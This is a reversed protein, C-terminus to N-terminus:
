VQYSSKECYILLRGSEYLSYLNSANFRGLLDLEIRAHEKEFEVDFKLGRINASLHSGRLIRLNDQYQCPMEPQRFGYGIIQTDKNALQRSLEIGFVDDLNLVAKKLGPWFFLKAKAAAYGDM